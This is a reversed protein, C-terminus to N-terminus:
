GMSKRWLHVSDIYDFCQGLTSALNFYINIKYAVENKM